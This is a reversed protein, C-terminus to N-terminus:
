RMLFVLFCAIGVVMMVGVIGGISCAWFFTVILLGAVVIAVFPFLICWIIELTNIINDKITTTM